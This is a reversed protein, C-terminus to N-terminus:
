ASLPKQSQTDTPRNQSVKLGSTIHFGTLFTKDDDSAAHFQCTIFFWEIKRGRSTQKRYTESINTKAPCYTDNHRELSSLLWSQTPDSREVTQSARTWMGVAGADDSGVFIAVTFPDFKYKQSKTGCFFTNNFLQVFRQNNQMVYLHVREILVSYSSRWLLTNSGPFHDSSHTETEELQDNPTKIHSIKVSPPEGYGPIGTSSSNLSSFSPWRMSLGALQVLSNHTSKGRGQDGFDTRTQSSIFM